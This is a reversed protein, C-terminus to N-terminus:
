DTKENFITFSFWLFSILNLALSNFDCVFGFLKYDLSEFFTNHKNKSGANEKDKLGTSLVVTNPNSKQMDRRLKEM